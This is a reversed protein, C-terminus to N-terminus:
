VSNWCGLVRNRKPLSQRLDSAENLCTTGRNFELNSIKDILVNMEEM